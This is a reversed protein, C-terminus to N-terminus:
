MDIDFVALYFGRELLFAPLLIELRALETRHM